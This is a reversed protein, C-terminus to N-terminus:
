SKAIRYLAIEDADKREQRLEEQSMQLEVIRELRDMIDREIKKERMRNRIEELRQELVAIQSQISFITHEALTLLHYIRHLEESQLVGSSQLEVFRNRLEDRILSVQELEKEMRWLEQVVQAYELQVERLAFERIGKIRRIRRLNM